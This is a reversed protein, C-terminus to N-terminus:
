RMCDSNDIKIWKEPVAFESWMHLWRRYYKPAVVIKDDRDTLYASWFSFTGTSLIAHKCRSMLLMDITPKNDPHAVFVANPIYSYEERCYNLEKERTIIFYKYNTIGRAKLQTEMARMASKFYDPGCIDYIYSSEIHREAKGSRRIHMGISVTNEIASLVSKEEDGLEIANLGALFTERTEQEAGGDKLYTINEWGGNVYYNKNEDLRFVNGNYCGTVEETIYNKM